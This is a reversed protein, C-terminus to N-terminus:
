PAASSGVLAKEFAKAIRRHGEASAHAGDTTHGPETFVPYLDVFDYGQEAALTEYAKGIERLRPLSRTGFVEGLKDSFQQPFMTPPAALIIRAGPFRRKLNDALTKMNAAAAAVTEDTHGTQWLDNSGLQLVAADMKLPLTPIIEGWRQVYNKTSWGGRGQNIFRMDPHRQALLSVFNVKRQTTAGETISDGLFVVTPRSDQPLQYVRIQSVLVGTEAPMLRVPIEGAEAVRFHVVPFAVFRGLEAPYLRAPRLKGVQLMVSDQDRADARAILEFAYEGAFLETDTELRSHGSTIGVAKVGGIEVVKAATIEMETCHIVRVITAEDAPAPSSFWCATLAAVATLRCFLLNM